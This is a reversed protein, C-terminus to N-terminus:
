FRFGLGFQTGSAPVFIPSASAVPADRWRPSADTSGVKFGIFAGLASMGVRVRTTSFIRFENTEGRGALFGVALGLGAGIFAARRASRPETGDAYASRVVNALPVAAGPQQLTSSLFVTDARVEALPGVITTGVSTTIRVLTGPRLQTLRQAVGDSPMLYMVCMCWLSLGRM